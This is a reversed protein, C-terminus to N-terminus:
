IVCFCLFGNRSRVLFIIVPSCQYHSVRCYSIPVEDWIARMNSFSGTQRTLLFLKVHVNIVSRHFCLSATRLLLLSSNSSASNRFSPELFDTIMDFQLQKNHGLSPTYNLQCRLRIGHLSYDNWIPLSHCLPIFSIDRKSFPWVTFFFTIVINYLKCCSRNLTCM